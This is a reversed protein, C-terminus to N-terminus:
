KVQEGDGQHRERDLDGYGKVLLVDGVALRRQRRALHFRQGVDDGLRSRREHEEEGHWRVRRGLEDGPFACDFEIACLAPL